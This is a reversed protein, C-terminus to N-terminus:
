FIPSRLRIVSLQQYGLPSMSSGRCDGLWDDGTEKLRGPIASQVQTKEQPSVPSSVVTLM